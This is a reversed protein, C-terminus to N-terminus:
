EEEPQHNPDEIEEVKPGPDEVKEPQLSPDSVEQPRIDPDKDKEFMKYVRNFDEMSTQIDNIRGVIQLMEGFDRISIYLHVLGIVHKSLTFYKNISTYLAGKIGKLTLWNQIILEDLQHQLNKYKELLANTRGEILRNREFCLHISDANGLDSHNILDEAAKGIRNVEALCTNAARIIANLEREIAILEVNGSVTDISELPEFVFADFGKIRSEGGLSVLPYLVLLLIIAKKM